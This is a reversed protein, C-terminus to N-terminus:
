EDIFEYVSSCTYTYVQLWCFFGSYMENNNIYKQFCSFHSLSASSLVLRLCWTLTECSGVDCEEVWLYGQLHQCALTHTHRDKCPVKSLTLSTSPISGCPLPDPGFVCCSDKEALSDSHPDSPEDREKESIFAEVCGLGTLAYKYIIWM